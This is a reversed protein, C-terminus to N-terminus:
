VRAMCGRAQLQTRVRMQGPFDVLHVPAPSPSATKELFFVGTFENAVMSTHTAAHKGSVLLEFLLTKGSDSPGVIVVTNGRKRSSMAYVIAALLLMALAIIGGLAFRDFPLM